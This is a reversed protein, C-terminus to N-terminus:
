LSIKASKRISCNCRVASEDMKKPGSKLSQMYYFYKQGSKPNLAFNQHRIQNSFIVSRRIQM